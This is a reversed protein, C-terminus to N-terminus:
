DPKSFLEEKLDVNHKVSSITFQLETPKIMHVSFPVKVGDVERFDGFDVQFTLEGLMSSVTAEERV